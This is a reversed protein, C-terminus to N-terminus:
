ASSFAPANIESQTKLTSPTFQKQQEIPAPQTVPPLGAQPPEPARTQPSGQRAQEGQKGLEYVQKWRSVRNELLTKLIPNLKVSDEASSTLNM